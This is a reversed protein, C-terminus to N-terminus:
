RQKAPLAHAVAAFLQMVSQPDLEVEQMKVRVRGPMSSSPEISLRSSPGAGIITSLQDAIKRNNERVGEPSTTPRRQQLRSEAIEAVIAAISNWEYDGSRARFQRVPRGRDHVTVFYGTYPSEDITVAVAQGRHAFALEPGPARVLGRMALQRIALAEIDTRSTM